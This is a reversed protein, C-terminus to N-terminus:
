HELEEGELGLEVEEKVIAHEAAVMGTDDANIVAQDLDDNQFLKELPSKDQKAM